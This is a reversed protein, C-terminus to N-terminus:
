LKVLISSDVSDVFLSLGSYIPCFGNCALFKQAQLMNQLIAFFLPFVTAPQQLHFRCFCAGSCTFLLLYNLTHVTSSSDLCDPPLYSVFLSRVSLVGANFRDLIQPLQVRDATSHRDFRPRSATSLLTKRSMFFLKYPDPINTFTLM